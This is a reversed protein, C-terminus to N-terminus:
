YGFFTLGSPSSGLVWLNFTKQEVLQAVPEHKQLKPLCIMVLFNWYLLNELQYNKGWFYIIVAEEINKFDTYM